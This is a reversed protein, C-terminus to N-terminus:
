QKVFLVNGVTSTNGLLQLTYNGAALQTTNIRQVGQQMDGHLVCRGAMDIVNYTTAAENVDSNNVDLYGIAPNPYIQWVKTAQTNAVGTSRFSYSGSPVQTTKWYITSTTNYTAWAVLVDDDWKNVPTSVSSAFGGTQNFPPIFNVKYYQNPPNAVQTPNSVNIPELFLDYLGTLPNMTFHAISYFNSNFSGYAVTPGYSNFPGAAPYPAGPSVVNSVAFFSTGTYGLLNDYTRAENVSTTTSAVQAAVKYKSVTPSSNLVYDDIADIRPASISTSTSGNDLTGVFTIGGTTMDWEAYLLKNYSNDVYPLLALNHLGSGVTRQIGAVDCQVANTAIVTGALTAPPANLTATAAYMTTTSINCWSIAFINCFPFGTPGTNSFESILDIHVSSAATTIVTNGTPTVTFTGPGTYHIKYYDVQPHGSTINIYAAALIYDTMPNTISNGIVIDPSVMPNGTPYPISITSAPNSKDTILIGGPNPNGYYDCAFLTTPASTSGYDIMATNLFSINTTGGLWTNDVHTPPVYTPPTSFAASTVLCSAFLTCLSKSKFSSLSLKRKM